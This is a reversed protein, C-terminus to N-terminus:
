DTPLAQTQTLFLNFDSDICTFYDPHGFCLNGDNNVKVKWPTGDKSTVNIENTAVLNSMSNKNDSILTRIEDFTTNIAQIDALQKDSLSSISSMLTAVDLKQKDSLTTLSAETNAIDSTHKGSLSVSLSDISSVVSAIDAKQKDSLSGVAKNISTVTSLLNDISTQFKDGDDSLKSIKGQLDLIKQELLDSDMKRQKLLSDISEQQLSDLSATINQFTFYNYALVCVIIVVIILVITLVDM